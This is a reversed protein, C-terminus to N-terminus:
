AIVNHDIARANSELRLMEARITKRFWGFAPVRTMDPAGDHVNDWFVNIEFFDNFGIDGMMKMRERIMFREVGIAAWAHHGMGVTNINPIAFAILNQIAHSAKPTHVDTIAAFFQGVNSILM